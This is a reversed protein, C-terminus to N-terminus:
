CRSAQAHRHTIHGLCDSFLVTALRLAQLSLITLSDGAAAGLSNCRSIRGVAAHGTRTLDCARNRGGSRHQDSVQPVVLHVANLVCGIHVSTHALAFDLKLDTERVRRHISSDLTEFSANVKSQPMTAASPAGESRVSHQTSSGTAAAQASEANQRQIEDYFDLLQNCIDAAFAAGSSVSCHRSATLLFLSLYIM